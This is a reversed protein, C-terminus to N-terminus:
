KELDLLFQCQTIEIHDYLGSTKSFVIGTSAGSTVGLLIYAAGVKKQKQVLNKCIKKFLEKHVEDYTKKDDYNQQLTEKFCLGFHSLTKARVKLPTEKFTNTKFDPIVKTYNGSTGMILLTSLSEKQLVKSM